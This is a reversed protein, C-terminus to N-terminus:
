HYKYTLICGYGEVAKEDPLPECTPSNPDFTPMFARYRYSSVFDDNPIYDNYHYVIKTRSKAFPLFSKLISNTRDGDAGTERGANENVLGYVMNLQVIDLPIEDKISDLAFDTLRKNIGRRRYDPDTYDGGNYIFADQLSHNPIEKISFKFYNGDAKFIGVHTPQSKDGMCRIEDTCVKQAEDKSMLYLKKYAILKDQERAVFLKRDQINSEFAQQRFLEPLIVIKKHDDNSIRNVMNLLEDADELTAKKFTPTAALTLPLLFIFLYKMIYEKLLYDEFM